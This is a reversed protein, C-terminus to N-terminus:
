ATFSACFAAIDGSRGIDPTFFFKNPDPLLSLKGASLFLGGGPLRIRAVVGVGHFDTFNGQADFSQFLTYHYLDTVLTVGHASFTDQEAVHLIARTVRGDADRYDRETYTIHGTQAVPFPCITTVTSAVDFSGGSVTPGSARATQAALLAGAVVTVITATRRLGRRSIYPLRLNSM